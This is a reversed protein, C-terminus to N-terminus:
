QNWPGQLRCLVVVQLRRVVMGSSVSTDSGRFVLMYTHVYAHVYMSVKEVNGCRMCHVGYDYWHAAIHDEEVLRQLFPTPPCRVCACLLSEVSVSVGTGMYQM